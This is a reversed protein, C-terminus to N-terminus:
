MEIVCFYLARLSSALSWLHRFLVHWPKALGSEIQGRLWEDQRRVAHTARPCAALARHVRPFRHLAVLGVASCHLRPFNMENFYTVVKTALFYQFCTWLMVIFGRVVNFADVKFGWFHLWVREKSQLTAPCSKTYPPCTTPQPPLRPSDSSVSRCQAIINTSGGLCLPLLTHEAGQWFPLFFICIPLVRGKM